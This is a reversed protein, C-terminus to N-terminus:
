SAADAASKPEPAQQKEDYQIVTLEGDGELYARKVTSVDDIGQARLHSALEETTILERRLNRHLVHGDKVLPMPPPHVFHEVAPVHYGLWDVAFAWFVITAVLLLGDGVSQYQGAMANQAADAVLVLVLLDAMSMSGSQRKLGVRLLALLALYVISGRLVIELPPSDPLLIKAFDLDMDTRVAAAAATVNM